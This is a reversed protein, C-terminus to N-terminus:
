QTTDTVGIPATLAEPALGTTATDPASLGFSNLAAFIWTGPPTGNSAAFVRHEPPVILNLRGAQAEAVTLFIRPGGPFPNGAVDAIAKDHYRIETALNQPDPTWTILIQHNGLGQAMFNQPVGPTPTPTPTPTPAPAGKPEFFATCTTPGHLDIELHNFFERVDITYDTGQVLPFSSGPADGETGCQWQPGNAPRQSNADPVPNCSITESARAAICNAAGNCPNGAEAPTGGVCQITGNGLGGKSHKFSNKGAAASAATIPAASTFVGNIPNGTLDEAMWTGDPQFKTFTKAGAGGQTKCDDTTDIPRGPAAALMMYNVGGYPPSGSGSNPQHKVLQLSLAFVDQVRGPGRQGILGNMAVTGDPDVCGRGSGFDMLGFKTRDLTYCGTSENTFPDTEVGMVFTEGDPGPRVMTLTTAKNVGNVPMMGGLMIDSKPKQGPCNDWPTKFALDGSPKMEFGVVGDSPGGLVAARDGPMRAGVPDPRGNQNLDVVFLPFFAGQAELPAEFSPSTAMAWLLPTVLALAFASQRVHNM